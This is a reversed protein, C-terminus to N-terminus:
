RGGGIRVPLRVPAAAPARRRVRRRVPREEAFDQEFTFVEDHDPVTYPRTPDQPRLLPNTATAIRVQFTHQPAVRMHIHAAGSADTRTVERGDVYVPLDARENTRVIVVAERREPPCEFTVQIGRHQSVPDISQVRRLAQTSPETPSRYGDPCRVGVTLRAGEPGTLAQRVIGEANTPTPIAQGDVLLTAGELPRGDTHVTFTFPYAPPPGEEEACSASAVALLACGIGIVRRM